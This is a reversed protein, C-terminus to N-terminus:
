REKRTCHVGERAHRQVDVLVELVDDGGQVEEGEEETDKEEDFTPGHKYRRKPKFVTQSFEFPSHIKQLHQFPLQANNHQRGLAHMKLM